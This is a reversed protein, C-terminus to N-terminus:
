LRSTNQKVQEIDKQIKQIPIIIAGTNESIQQLELYSQAIINRADEAINGIGQQISEQRLSSEYLATFRGNLESAQDQTMTEFGRATASQQEQASTGEYGTAAALDDRLKLAEEVYGLYEDRLANMEKDELTDDEMATAFKAYWDELKDAYMKGIQNALMARMFYESINDAAEEASYEMNMLNDVFSDYMSDFSIQTLLERTNNTIEELKGAQDIYDDLKETLRSGYGGKGTDQILAWMEPNSRLIKMEEPSLDWLSGSWERGIQESLKDIMEQTFGGWYANWSHHSGHYGAQAMAMELYNQNIEKQYEEARKSAELTQTGRAVKMTDNLDDISQRLAENRDTLRDITAQVEKANSSSTWSSFGGFTIADLISGVGSKISDFLTVFLDGSLVDSLIGSVASFIGDLLGEVVTSLGDKLIDLISLIWGIIFVDGLKDSIEGMKDNGSGKALKLLGEYAAQIGGSALQQLGQTVNEMNAKLTTATGTVIQNNKNAIEEQKRVNESAADAEDKAATLKLDAAAKEDDTGNNLADEYAEQAEALREMAEAEQQKADNLDRMSQQLTKVEKGLQKFSVKGSGGLAQEMKRVAEVIESQNTPQLRKFDDTQMYQKVKELTPRIIEDFMGGFEGFVAPWDISMRLAEAEMGSLKQDREKELSLRDGETQADAIKRAYEQAIALKKQQFTGYESIYALMADTEARYVDEIQKKRSETALKNARDIEAQQDTTLGNANTSTIGADKNAEALERQQNIIAEKERKYRLEIEALQKETGEKMLDIERNENEERLKALEDLYSKASNIESQATNQFSTLLSLRQEDKQISALLDKYEKSSVSLKELAERNAAIRDRLAKISDSPLSEETGETMGFINRFEQLSKERAEQQKRIEFLLSNATEGTWNNVITKSFLDQIQQPVEINSDMYKRFADMFKTWNEDGYRKQFAKAVKELNKNQVEMYKEDEESSYEEFGRAAAAKQISEALRDYSNALTGTKDIEQDISPLYKSYGTVLKNRIQNWEETGRKANELSKNLDKLVRMEESANGYVSSIATNLRKMAEELEKTGDKAKFLNGVWEIIDKGYLTLLTIGVTLATQWSLLSSVVQKWVPTAQQGAEKLRNYEDKARKIEDTLIPLNNSIALFFTNWGMALSPLERGIQQISMGLGNWGSAYNGVNRSYVGMSQEIESIKTNAQQIAALLDQAEKTGRDSIDAYANKMQILQARLQNLSGEAAQYIKIQNTISRNAENRQVTNAKIVANLVGIRQIEKDTFDTGRSKQDAKIKKIEENHIRIANSAENWKRIQDTFTGSIDNIVGRLEDYAKAQAEVSATQANTAATNGGSAGQANAAGQGSAAKTMQEQAEIITEASKNIRATSEAIKADAQAVKQVLADYQTTLSKLKEEMGKAIDIDVKVNINKLAKKVGEIEEKLQHIKDIDSKINAFIGAM